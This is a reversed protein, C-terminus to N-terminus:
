IQLGCQEWPARSAHCNSRALNLTQHTPMQLQKLPGVDKANRSVVPDLGHIKDIEIALSGDKFSREFKSIDDTPVELECVFTKEEGTLRIHLNSAHFNKELFWNLDPLTEKLKNKKAKFAYM